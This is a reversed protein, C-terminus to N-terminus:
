PIQKKLYAQLDLERNTALSGLLSQLDLIPWFSPGMFTRIGFQMFFAGPVFFWRARRSLIAIPYGAEVIITFAALLQFLWPHAALNLGWSTLPEANAIHYNHQIMVIGLNDSTVWELGSHRIKSVGASFFIVAMSVWVMRVPWTYVGSPKPHDLSASKSARRTRQLVTDLSLADGCRSAAIYGLVFIILTDNHQASGFNNPLAILYTGFIFAILTSLSTFLGICSLILSVRWISQLVSLSASSLVTLHLSQFLWTPLWFVHSVQGWAAADYPLYFLFIGAFFIIRCLGLNNPSAPEFWFYRWRERLAEM